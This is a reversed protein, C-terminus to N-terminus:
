IRNDKPSLILRAFGHPSDRLSPLRVRIFAKLSNTVGLFLSEHTRARARPHVVLRGVAAPHVESLSSPTEGCKEKEVFLFVVIVLKYTRTEVGELGERAVWGAGGGAM